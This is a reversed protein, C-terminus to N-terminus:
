RNRTFHESLRIGVLDLGLARIRDLVGHLGAQDLEGCVVTSDTEDRTSLGAFAARAAPGLVGAVLVEYMEGPRGGPASGAVSVELVDLGLVRARELVGHLAAQDLEGRLQLVYGDSVADLGLFAFSSMEGARERLRIVYEPPM